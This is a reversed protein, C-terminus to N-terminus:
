VSLWYQLPEIAQFGAMRYSTLGVPTAQLWCWRSGVALGDAVARAIVATGFGRGRWGPLTAVNFIGTFRGVTVSLATTVPQGDVEGTYCRVSALRLLDPGAAQLFTEGTLGFGAAAVAAARPTQEPALQRIALGAPEPIAPIDDGSDLAMLTLDGVLTMGRASALKALAEDSGPRARLSYLAGADAVEDLLAAVDAMDPDPRESWVGNFPPAPLGTVAACAGDRRLFRSGPIVSIVQETVETISATLFDAIPSATHAM